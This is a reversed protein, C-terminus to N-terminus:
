SRYPRRRRCSKRSRIKPFWRRKNKRLHRRHRAKHGIKEVYRKGRKGLIGQRVSRRLTQEAKMTLAGIRWVNGFKHRLYNTVDTATAGNVGGIKYFAGLVIKSTNSNQEKVNPKFM